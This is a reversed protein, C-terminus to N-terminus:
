QVQKDTLELAEAFCGKIDKNELMIRSQIEFDLLKEKKETYNPDNYDFSYEIAKILKARDQNLLKLSQTLLEKDFDIVRFEKGKGTICHGIFEDIPKDYFLCQFLDHEENAWYRSIFAVTIDYYDGNNKNYTEKYFKNNNYSNSIHMDTNYADAEDITPKYEGGYKNTIYQIVNNINIVTNNNNIVQPTKEKRETKLKEVAQCKELQHKAKEQILKSSNETREKDLLKKEKIIELEKEKKEQIIKLRLKNKEKEKKAKENIIILKNNLDKDKEIQLRATREREIELRLELDTKTNIIKCPNKRKEHRDLDRSYEFVKNCRICKIIVSCPIKKNLHKNLLYESIFKKKCTKCKYNSM